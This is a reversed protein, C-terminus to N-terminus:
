PNSDLRTSSAMPRPLAVSRGAETWERRLKTAKRLAYRVVARLMWGQTYLESMRESSLETEMLALYQARRPSALCNLEGSRRDSEYDLVDDVVQLAMGLRRLDFRRELQPRSGLLGTIFLISDYGRELGDDTISGTAETDYLDLAIASRTSGATATVIEGLLARNAESFGRWDTLVDYTACCVGAMACRRISARGRDARFATYCLALNSAKRRFRRKEAGSLRLRASVARCQKGSELIAWITQFM